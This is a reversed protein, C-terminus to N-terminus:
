VYLVYSVCVCVLLSVFYAFLSPCSRPFLMLPHGRTEVCMCVCMCAREGDCVRVQVGMFVGMYMCICVRVCLFSVTSSVTIQVLLMYTHSRDALHPLRM